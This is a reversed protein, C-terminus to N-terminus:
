YGYPFLLLENNEKNVFRRKCLTNSYTCQNLVTEIEFKKKKTRVQAISKQLILDSNNLFDKFTSETIENQSMVNNLSLGSIRTLTKMKQDFNNQYTISYNKPGFSYYSLINGDIEHKFSGLCESIPVPIKESVPLSFIISDCEVQYLKGGSIEIENLYDYIIQRGYAVIAGGLYVNTKLNPIQKQNEQHIEIQCVDDNLCFVDTIKDSSHFIEELNTQSRVFVTKPKNSHQQFKGFFTNSMQKYLFRKRCNAKVNQTNLDFPSTLQMETNLLTCVNNKEEFTKCNKLLDTQRLKLVNLKTVFDKLLFNSNKYFHSEYIYLIKYDFKLAQNIESIFYCSTIARDNDSHKCIISNNECCKSCLTNVVKGSKTRYQLFPKFCKKPPVITLLITGYMESDNYHLKNNIIKIQNVKEGILVEYKGIMFPFKTCAFSFLGNVDLFYLNENPHEKKTWKLRYVDSYSGRICTRPRLRILPHPKLLANAFKQYGLSQKQQVVKCEWFITVKDVENPNNEILKCLKTEFLNNAEEFTQGFINITDKSANKNISCNDFHSHFKCGNIYVAEKTIPSYLDPVSEKFFKQGYENNFATIFKKEPNEFILYSSWDYELRSVNKNKIGYENQVCYVNENNLYLLKFLKYTYSSLSCLHYGFPLLLSNNVSSSPLSTKLLTEFEFCDKAFLLLSNLTIWLKEDCYRNLERQFNWQYNSLELKQVFNQKKLKIEESDLVSLFFNVDPVKGCYNFNQIINFQEPFFIFDIPLQFTQALELEIQNLYANSRIFRLNINPIEMFLIIRGNQIIKPCFGNNLFGLLISTFNLSDLDQSIFTTNNWEPLTILQILKDILNLNKANKEHLVKVNNQFDECCKTKRKKNKKKQTEQLNDNKFNNPNPIDYLNFYVANIETYDGIESNNDNLVFKDYFGENKAQKYIISINPESHCKFLHNFCNLTCFNPNAYVQNWTLCFKNKFDLKIKFCDYCKGVYSNAHEMGIFALNPISEPYREKKLKCLHTEFSTYKEYCFKCIKIGCKHSLEIQKSNTNGFRYTFKNCKLCKWGFTGLTGYCLKKHGKACHESNLTVNCKSCKQQSNQTINKDCFQEKLKKHIYTKTTMFSRRCAFCFKEKRCLHQYQHTKFTKKCFFCVKLNSKFYSNLNRIFIVHSPNDIPQYLYIPILNDDYNSPYMFNLKSSNDVADFIFFQCHYINNLVKVTSELEYPGEAKLNTKELLNNLKELLLKCAHERKNEFLSTINVLYQFDKIKHESFFLENQSLGLITSTLLCKNKFIDPCTKCGDPVDIAWHFKYTVNSSLKRAGYHKKFRKKPPKKPKKSAKENMHSVSLVKIYVKFTENVRLSQNSQLFQNLIMLLRRVMETSGEHIEFAGTNLGNIMPEQFFTMYAINHDNPDYFGRL